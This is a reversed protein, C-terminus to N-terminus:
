YEEGDFIAGMSYGQYEEFVERLSSGSDLMQLIDTLQNEDEASFSVNDGESSAKDTIVIYRSGGGDNIFADLHFFSSDLSALDQFHEDDEDGAYLADNIFSALQKSSFQAKPKKFRSVDGFDDTDSM